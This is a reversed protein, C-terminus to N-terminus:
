LEGMSTWAQSPYRVDINFNSEPVDFPLPTCGRALAMHYAKRLEDIEGVCEFPKMVNDIGLLGKFTTTLEERAFLDGGLRQQLVSQEIFPAFLLYANACKPCNGCWTLETNDAGQRYNAVNCSSFSDGYISWANTAFLEAVKLESFSRLPSGVRLDSSIYRQVYEAFSSEAQWTKSWQHNVSLDGIWGHPEDGEHAIGTLVTDKGLLVAQVLALSLLIYTVPVHGNLGGEKEAASLAPRDLLRHVIVLPAGLKDLVTPHGAGSSVYWPVYEIQRNKLLTAVLLSDKGGSQLSVIGTGSYSVPETQEATTAEFHALDDRTLHNEYAFQSLGEQYVRDFFTAQWADLKGHEILVTPTPSIKYYSTGILIFVFFLVRDLVEKDYEETSPEFQVREVYQRHADEYTFVAEGDTFEYSMFRFPSM